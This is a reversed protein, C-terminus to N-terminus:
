NGYATPMTNAREALADAISVPAAKVHWGWTREIEQRAAHAMAAAYAKRIHAMAAKNVRRAGRAKARRTLIERRTIRRRSHRWAALAANAESVYVGVIEPTADVDGMIVAVTWKKKGSQYVSYWRNKIQRGMKSGRKRKM